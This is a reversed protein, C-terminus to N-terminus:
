HGGCGFLFKQNIWGALARDQLLATLGVFLAATILLSASPAIMRESLIQSPIAVTVVERIAWSSIALVGRIGSRTWATQLQQEFVATMECGYPGRLERPYLWLLARYVSTLYPIARPMIM